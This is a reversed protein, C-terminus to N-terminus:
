SWRELVRRAPRQDLLQVRRAELGGNPAELRPDGGFAVLAAHLLRGADLRLHDM